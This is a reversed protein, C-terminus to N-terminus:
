EAEGSKSDAVIPKANVYANIIVPGALEAEKDVPLRWVRTRGALVYGFLGKSIDFEKGSKNAFRMAGIQAHLQGSNHVSLHWDGEKRFIRWALSESPPAGAPLVFLPVSYRLRFDVGSNQTGDDRAIEDILIRFTSEGPKPPAVRVLRILQTANPGVQVIPPSAVVLQTPTLVDESDKQDWEYVRVQGFIPAQGLNQLQISTATQDGRLYITVPSIQLSAAAAPLGLAAAIALVPALTTHLWTHQTPLHM